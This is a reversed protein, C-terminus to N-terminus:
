HGGVSQQTPAFHVVHQVEGDHYHVLLGLVQPDTPPFGQFTFLVNGSALATGLAALFQELESQDESYGFFGAPTVERVSTRPVRDLQGVAIVSAAFLSVVVLLYARRDWRRNVPKNQGSSM